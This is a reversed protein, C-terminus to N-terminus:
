QVASVATPPAPCAQCGGAGDGVRSVMGAESDRLTQLPARTLGRSARRVWQDGDREKGSARCSTAGPAGEETGGDEGARGAM